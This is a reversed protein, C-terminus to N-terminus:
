DINNLGWDYRLYRIRIQDKDIASRTDANLAMV